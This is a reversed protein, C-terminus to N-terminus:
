ATSVPAAEAGGIENAAAQCRWRLSAAIVARSFKAVQTMRSGALRGQRNMDAEGWLPGSSAARKSCIM